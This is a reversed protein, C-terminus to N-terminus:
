DNEFDIQYNFVIFTLKGQELNLIEHEQSISGHKNDFGALVQPKVVAVKAVADADEDKYADAPNIGQALLKAVGPLPPSGSGSTFTPVPMEQADDAEDESEEDSQGPPKVGQNILRAVEPILTSYFSFLLISLIILM